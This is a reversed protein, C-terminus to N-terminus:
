REKKIFCKNYDEQSIVGLYLESSAQISATRTGKKSILALEGFSAGSRLTNVNIFVTERDSLNIAERQEITNKAKQKLMM